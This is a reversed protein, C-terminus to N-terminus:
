DQNVNNNHNVQRDYLDSVQNRISPFHMPRRAINVRLHESLKLEKGFM